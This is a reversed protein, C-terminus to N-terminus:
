ITKIKEVLDRIEEELKKSINIEKNRAYKKLDFPIYCLKDYEEDEYFSLDEVGWDKIRNLYKEEDRDTNIEIEIVIPHGFKEWLIYQSGFWIDIKEDLGNKISDVFYGYYDSARENESKKNSCEINVAAADIVNYIKQILKPVSRNNMIIEESDTSEILHFDENFFEIKESYLWRSDMIEVFEKIFLNLKDLEADKIRKLVEEWFIMSNEKINDTNYGTHKKWRECIEEIHYYNEPIIFILRENDNNLYKLYSEPQNETLNCWSEIKIEFIYEDNQDVSLLIDARGHKQEDKGLSIETDFCDYDIKEPNINRGKEKIMNLILLRFPKFSMLNCFLETVSTENKVLNYFINNERSM